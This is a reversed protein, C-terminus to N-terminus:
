IKKISCTHKMRKLKQQVNPLSKEFPSQVYLIKFGIM